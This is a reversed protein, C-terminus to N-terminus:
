DNRYLGNFRVFCSFTNIYNSQLFYNVSAAILNNGADKLQFTTGTVTSANIAENFNATVTTGTSVGTAGSVPSVSTVTPPTNDVAATTFAGAIIM